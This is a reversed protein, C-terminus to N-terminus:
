VPSLSCFYDAKLWATKLTYRQLDDLGSNRCHSVRM